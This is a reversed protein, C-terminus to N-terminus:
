LGRRGRGVARAVMTAIQAESRAFSEADRAEVNFVIQPTAQGGGGAAVGLRGSADRSLPLVAEAGAEGMLGLADAGGGPLPFYGPAAVVGGKAFPLIGGGSFGSALGSFLQGALGSIGSSIGQEVPALAASLARNSLSLAASRLVQELSRGDVLAQRLGRSLVGAADRSASRVDEMAARLREAEDLELGEASM